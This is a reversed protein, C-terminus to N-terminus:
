LKSAIFTQRWLELCVLTWIRQGHNKRNNKHNDLLKELASKKFYSQAFGSGLIIERAWPYLNNRFWDDVPLEFGRKGRMIENPIQGRFVDKLIKKKSFLGVKWSAPLSASFELLRHDLFPSRAEMGVAMTAIDVKVLLDDPLFTNFSLAFVDDLKKLKTKNRLFEGFYNRTAIDYYIDKKLCHLWNWYYYRKYGGFAEDGGDGNLAVTAQKRSLEALYFTPLASSDAYPEEYQYILKPLMEVADPKIELEIHESGVIQAVTRALSREDFGAEPFGITFTKFSPLQEKMLNAIVASDVGGSLFLGLPVDAILQSKVAERLIKSLEDKAEHYTLHAKKKFNLEWYRKIELRGNHLVAYHAAPLKKIGLFGTEPAAVHNFALFYAIAEEDIKPKEPLIRLIAKLESAFVFVGGDFYYKLPKQGARDRALFLKQEKEDWIAFAFMGVLDDVCMEKKEEWLHVLVESDTRSKFKHGKKELDGRLEQFNYIEGNFIVWVSGDENSMPQRGAPSLDIISLRRHGLGVSRKPNIYIGEDDPGRHKLADNM